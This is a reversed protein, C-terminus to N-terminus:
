VLLCVHCSKASVLKHYDIVLFVCTCFVFLLLTILSINCTANLIDPNQSSTPIDEEHDDISDPVYNMFGNPDNDEGLVPLDKRKKAATLDPDYM